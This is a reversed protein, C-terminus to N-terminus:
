FLGLIQKNKNSSLVALNKLITLSAGMSSNQIGLPVAGVCNHTVLLFLKKGTCDLGGTSDMYVINSANRYFIVSTM